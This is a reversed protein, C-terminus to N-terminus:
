EICMLNDEKCFPCKCVVLRSVKLMCEACMENRCCYLMVMRKKDEACIHCEAERLTRMNKKYPGAGAGARAPQAPPEPEIRLQEAMDVLAYIDNDRLMADRFSNRARWADM